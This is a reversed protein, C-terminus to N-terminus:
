MAHHLAPYRREIEDLDLVPAEISAEVDEDIGASLALELAAMDIQPASPTPEAAVIDESVVVIDEPVVVIDSGAFVTEITPPLEIPQLVPPQPDPAVEFAPLPLRAAILEARTPEDARGRALAQWANVAMKAERIDDLFSQESYYRRWRGTEFLETLHDLRRQALACWRESLERSCAVNLRHTM